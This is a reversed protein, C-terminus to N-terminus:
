SILLGSFDKGGNEQRAYEGGLELQVAGKGAVGADETSLPRGAFSETVFYFSIGFIALWYVIKM